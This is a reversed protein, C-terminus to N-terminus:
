AFGVAYKQPRFENLLRDAEIWGTPRGGEWDPTRFNVWGGDVSQSAIERSTGSANQRLTALAYECAGQYLPGPTTSYGYTGVVVHDVMAVWGGPRFIIGERKRVTYSAADVADGDTTISTVTLIRQHPLILETAWRDPTVTYTFATTEGAIGCYDVVIQAWEAVKATVDTDSWEALATLREKAQAATPYAM